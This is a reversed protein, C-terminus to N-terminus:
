VIKNAKPENRAGGLLFQVSGVVNVPLVRRRSVIEGWVIAGGKPRYECATTKLLGELHNIVEPCSPIVIALLPLAM